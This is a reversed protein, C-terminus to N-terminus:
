PLEQQGSEGQAVLQRRAVGTNGDKGAAVACAPVFAAGLDYQSTVRVKGNDYFAVNIGLIATLAERFDAMKAAFVQRLRPMRKERQHLGEGLQAKEQCVAAWSRAVLETATSSEGANSTTAADSALSASHVGSAELTSLRELLAANEVNLRDLAAQRSAAWDQAPNPCLSLVRVGSPVHRGARIKGRLEFLTQDLEEIKGV